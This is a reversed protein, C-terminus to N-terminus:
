RLTMSDMDQRRLAAPPPGGWAAPVLDLSGPARLPRRFFVTLFLLVDAVIQIILPAAMIFDLITTMTTM